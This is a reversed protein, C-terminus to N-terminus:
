DEVVHSEFERRKDAWLAHDFRGDERLCEEIGYAMAFAHHTNDHAFLGQRGFSVLGELESLWHDITRFAEAYGRAYVPYANPLRRTVTKLVPGRTPLGVEELWGVLKAGLADDSMQWYAEDPDCPLEACLVTQGAPDSCAAYNKPESLRSIPTSLEPFYHADYETFRDQGLVLYILVMGRSRISRAAEIVEPPPPPDLLRVLVSLPISSFVHDSALREPGDPGDLRIGTVRPGEREVATVATGYRFSAGQGAAAEAMSQSIQGFGNRPYYFRGTTPSRLGPLMRLMKGLIKGVSSGSVRRHALEVDLEAPPRGWLKTVYPFYFSESITPGLGNRLVSAFSEEGTDRRRFKKLAMDGLLSLAFKPPLGTLTGLPKLPFGVWRGGLRIRGHRPRLLLDDGLLARVDDIMEPSAAPHFRHSGYDCFQGDLEFSGSNGGPGEGREIVEVAADDRRTLRYAAAVGAPGAGLITVRTRAGLAVPGANGAKGRLTRNM